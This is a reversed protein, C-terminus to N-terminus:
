TPCSCYSMNLTINSALKEVEGADAEIAPAPARASARGVRGSHTVITKRLQRAINNAGHQAACDAAAVLSITVTQMLISLSKATVKETKNSAADATSARQETYQAKLFAVRGALRKHAKSASVRLGPTPEPKPYGVSSECWAQILTMQHGDRASQALIQCFREDRPRKCTSSDSIM